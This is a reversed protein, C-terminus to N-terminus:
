KPDRYKCAASRVINKRHLSSHLNYHNSMRSVFVIQERPISLHYFWPKTPFVDKYYFSHYLKGKTLFNEKLSIFSKERLDRASFTCDTHSIKFKPKRGNIEAQRALLDARENGPIGVHSPIWM